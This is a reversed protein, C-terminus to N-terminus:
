AVGTDPVAEGARGFSGHGHGDKEQKGQGVQLNRSELMGPDEVHQQTPSASGGKDICRDGDEARGVGTVCDDM